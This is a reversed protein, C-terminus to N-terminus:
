KVVKIKSFDQEYAIPRTGNQYESMIQANQKASETAIKIKEQTYPNEGTDIHVIRIHPIFIIAFGALETRLCLSVDDWGYVSPQYLFKLQDLLKSTMMQVNSM